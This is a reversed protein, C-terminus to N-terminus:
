KYNILVNNYSIMLFLFILMERAILGKFLIVKDKNSNWNCIYVIEERSYFNNNQYEPLLLM